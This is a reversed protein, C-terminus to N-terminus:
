HYGSKLDIKSFYAAGSLCDMMDDMRPLPFRYRITIKNIARSDTCMQWEGGKKPALVTPVVCPSLSERILGKDLLEQVQKRIEENDKPSMRYAAKNPLSAGPIFDIHHSISRKPPLKNPFDDVVINTFEELMQQIEVPLDTIETHLLVTRTKKVVAYSIESNEVQKLFQKGSVLLAKTENTEVTEKEEKIPVLTHRVRDKEFKYCNMAGDHTVKRDYQWPRGLLIHCIDMPMIDCIIKDKYRIIQFEVESEEDVLLQHGKQLWSVRYPSPHKLRKLGLQEVMETSVLNDTSGSDIIMKCCKGQSKCITRFLAKRQTQEVSEDVPKLLVKHLVLAEGTEPANKAEQPPTATEVPQAVYAGRQGASDTEGSVGDGKETTGSTRSSSAEESNSATRGWGYSQGRGKASGRGRRANQRRNIKEEAKITSQYAEETNNPSLISIEDLIDMRLGNVYRATREVTDETYGARLNVRYFEETYEKVTLGRQRLNQVQRHLAIQYDRPLFRGKLKAVM